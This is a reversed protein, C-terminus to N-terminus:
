ITYEPSHDRYLHRMERDLNVQAKSRFEPTNDRTMCYYNVIAWHVIAMHRAAPIFPVTRDGSIDQVERRYDFAIEYERDTPPDFQLTGTPTVTFRHPRGSSRDGRNYVGGNWQQWPVYYVPTQDSVDDTQILIFRDEGAANFPMLEAYDGVQTTVTIESTATPITYAGRITMFNWAPHASQIDANSVRIWEVIEALVGTQGVTTTPATGPSEEAIRLLLHLRQCLQLFNM